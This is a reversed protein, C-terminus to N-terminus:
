QIDPQPSIRRNWFSDIAQSIENRFISLPFPIPTPRTPWLEELPCDNDPIATKRSLNRHLKTPRVGQLPRRDSVLLPGGVLLSSTSPLHYPSSIPFKKTAAFPM